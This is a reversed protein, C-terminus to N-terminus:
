ETCPEGKRSRPKPKIGYRCILHEPSSEGANRFFTEGTHSFENEYILFSALRKETMLTNLGKRVSRNDATGNEFFKSRIAAAQEAPLSALSKEITERLQSRYCFDTVSEDIPAAHPDEIIDLMTEGEEDDELAPADLRWASQIQEAQRLRGLQTPTIRLAELILKDDPPKGHQREYDSKFRCFRNFRDRANEPMPAIRDHNVASLLEDMLQKGLITLFAYECKSNWYKISRSIAFFSYTPLEEAEILGARIFNRATMYCFGRNKEILMLILNGHTDDGARIRLVIQENTLDPATLTTTGTM